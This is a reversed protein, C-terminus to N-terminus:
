KKGKECINDENKKEEQIFKVYTTDKRVKQPIMGDYHYELLTNMDAVPIRATQSGDFGTTTKMNPGYIGAISTALVFFITATFFNGQSFNKKAIVIAKLAQGGRITHYWNQMVSHYQEYKEMLEQSQEKYTKQKYNAQQNATRRIQSKKRSTPRKTRRKYIRRKTRRKKINSNTGRRPM